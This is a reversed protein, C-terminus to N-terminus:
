NGTYKSYLWISTIVTIVILLSFALLVYGKIGSSLNNVKKSPQLGMACIMQNIGNHQNTVCHIHQLAKPIECDDAKFTFIFNGKRQKMEEMAALFEKQVFGNGATSQQSLILVAFDSSRLQNLTAEAWKQGPIIKELDLWPEGGAARIAEAICRAFRLDQRSYSIFVRPSKM